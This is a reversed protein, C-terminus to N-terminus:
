DSHTETPHKRPATPPLTSLPIVNLGSTIMDFLLKRDKPLIQEADPKTLKPEVCYDTIITSTMNEDDTVLEVAVEGKSLNKKKVSGSKQGLRVLPVFSTM